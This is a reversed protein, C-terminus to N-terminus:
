STFTTINRLTFSKWNFHRYTTKKIMSKVFFFRWHWTVKCRAKLWDVDKPVFDTIQNTFIKISRLLISPPLFEIFLVVSVDNQVVIEMIILFVIIVTLQKLFNTFLGERIHSNNCLTSIPLRYSSHLAVFINLTLKIAM